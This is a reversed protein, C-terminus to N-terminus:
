KKRAARWSEWRWHVITALCGGVGDALVDGGSCSRGPIFSQHFEDSFGYLLCFLVVAGGVLLPRQRRWQPSLAFLFSLGLVAYALCHLVKDINVIDPLSLSDGTQHSMYFIGGMALTVPLLRYSARGDMVLRPGPLTLETTWM